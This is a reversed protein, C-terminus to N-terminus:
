GLAEVCGCRSKDASWRSRYVWRGGDPIESKSKQAKSGILGGLANYKLRSSQKKTSGVINPKLNGAWRLLEAMALSDLANTQRAYPFDIGFYIAALWCAVTLMAVGCACVCLEANAVHVYIGWIPRIPPLSTRRYGPEIPVRCLRSVCLVSPM